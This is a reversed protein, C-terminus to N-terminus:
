LFSYSGQYNLGFCNFNDLIIPDLESTFISQMNKVKM